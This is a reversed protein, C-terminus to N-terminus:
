KVSVRRAGEPLYLRHYCQLLYTVFISSVKTEQGSHNRVALSVRRALQRGRVIRGAASPSAPVRSAVPVGTPQGGPRGHRRRLRRRRRDHVAAAAPALQAVPRAAQGPRHARGPRVAAAAATADVDLARRAAPAAAAPRPTATAPTGATGAAATGPLRVLM